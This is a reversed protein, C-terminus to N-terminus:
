IQEDTQFNLLIGHEGLSASTSEPTKLFFFSFSFQSRQLSLLLYLLDFRMWKSKSLTAILLLVKYHDDYISNYPLSPHGFLCQKISIVSVVLEPAIDIGSFCMCLWCM